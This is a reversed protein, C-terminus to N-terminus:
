PLSPLYQGSKLQWLNVQGDQSASALVQGNRSLALSLIETKTGVLTQRLRGTPLQWVKILGDSGGSVLVSGDANFLLVQVIGAHAHLVKLPEGTNIDKLIIEGDWNGTALSREDPSIALARTLTPVAFDQDTSFSRIVKGAQINWLTTAGAIASSVLLRGDASFALSQEAESYGKLDRLDKGTRLNRLVIAQGSINSAILRTDPSIAVASILGPRDRNPKTRGLLKGSAVQWNLIEGNRAASYVQQDDPSLAVAIVQDTHGSLTHALKGTRTNWLRVDADRSGTALTQGNPSLALTSAEMLSGSRFLANGVSALPPAGALTPQSTFGRRSNSFIDLWDPAILFYLCASASLFATGAYIERKHRHRFSKRRPLATPISLSSVPGPIRPVVPRAPAPPKRLTPDFIDLGLAAKRECWNCQGYLRSYYHYQHQSCVKLTAIAGKLAQVWEEASPRARPNTHGDNFCRRFCTQLGPHVVALPITSPGPQILSNPAYPWFGRRILETPSPAEGLGTWKGKFPHDGFLLLYILIGLRFRDQVDTQEITSLDKGLLEVPTFGESGVLCRYVQHTLPDTVQFSDTDIVSPAARDNILINQPKIDGVVYGRAHISKIVSAINLAATHLYYWNFRPAKQKRLRPSYISSLKVSNKITPMLFGVFNGKADQLLDQPWAFSIHNNKLMPDSPPNAIMVELKQRRDSTPHHYLKAVFGPLSTEWVTGEGSNAIQKTLTLPRDSGLCTLKLPAKSPQNTKPQKM